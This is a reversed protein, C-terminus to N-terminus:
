LVRMRKQFRKAEEMDKEEIKEKSSFFKM